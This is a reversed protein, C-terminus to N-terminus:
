LQSLFFQGSPKNGTPILIGLYSELHFPEEQIWEYGVKFEIDAVGTKSENFPKLKVLHGNM